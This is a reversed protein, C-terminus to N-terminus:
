RLRWEEPHSNGRWPNNLRQDQGVAPGSIRLQKLFTRALGGKKLLGVGLERLDFQRFGSELLYFPCVPHSRFLFM